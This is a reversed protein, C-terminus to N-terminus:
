GHHRALWADIEGVESQTAAGMSALVSRSEEILLRGKGVDSGSEVLARGLLWGSWALNGRRAGRMKRIEYARGLHEIAASYDRLGLLSEGMCTLSFALDPHDSGLAAIDEDYAQHAYGLAEDFLGERNALNALSTLGVAVDANRDFQRWHEVALLLEKRAEPYNGLNIHMDALANRTAALLAFNPQGQLQIELAQQLASRAECYRGLEKLCSGLRTLSEAIVHDVGLREALPMAAAQIALAEETRGSKSHILALTQMASLRGFDSNQEQALREAEVATRWAADLENTRALALAHDATIIALEPVCEERAIARAEAILAAGLQNHGAMMQIKALQYKVRIQDLRGTCLALARQLQEIAELLSCTSIAAAAAMEYYHVARDNVQGQEFQYALQAAIREPHKAALTELQTAVARHLYVREVPNVTGYVYQRTISHSFRFFTAQGQAPHGSGSPVVLKGPTRRTLARAVSIPSKELVAAVVEVSFQDGEVSGAQLIDLLEADLRGLEDALITEIKQPLSKWRLQPSVRWGEQSLELHGLKRLHAVLEVVFLPLGGTHRTLDRVFEACVGPVTHQIYEAVFQERREEGIEDLDLRLVELSDGIRHVVRRFDPSRDMFRGAVLFMIRRRATKEALRALLQLSAEDACDLDDIVVMLPTNDLVGEIVSIYQDQLRSRDAAVAIEEPRAYNSSLRDLLASRKLLKASKVALGVGPILLEVIDPALERLVGQISRVVSKRDRLPDEALSLYPSGSFSQLIQSWPYLPSISGIQRDCRGWAIVVPIGGSDVASVFAQLLTSKGSGAQGSVVCLASRGSMALDFQSRMAHLETARGMCPTSSAGYMCPDTSM